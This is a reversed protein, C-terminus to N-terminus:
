ASGVSRSNRHPGGRRDRRGPRRRRRDAPGCAVSPTGGLRGTFDPLLRVEPRSYRQGQRVEAVVLGNPPFM